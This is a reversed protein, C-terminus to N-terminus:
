SRIYYLTGGAHIRSYDQLLDDAYSEWNVYDVLPSEQTIGGIDFAQEKAYDVFHSEQILCIGACTGVDEILEQLIALEPGEDSELDADCWESVEFKLGPEFPDDGDFDDVGLFEKLADSDHSKLIVRLKGSLFRARERVDRMDIIDAHAIASPERASENEEPM